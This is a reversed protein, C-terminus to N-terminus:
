LYFYRKLQCRTLVNIRLVRKLDPLRWGTSSLALHLVAVKNKLADYTGVEAITNERVMIAGDQRIAGTEVNIIRVNYLLVESQSQGLCLGNFFIIIAILTYRM